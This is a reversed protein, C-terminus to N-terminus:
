YKKYNFNIFDNYFAKNVSDIYYRNKLIRKDAFCTKSIDPEPMVYDDDDNSSHDAHLLKGLYFIIMM